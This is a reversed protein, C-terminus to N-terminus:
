QNNLANERFQDHLRRNALTKWGLCPPTLLTLIPVAGTLSNESEGGTNHMILHM